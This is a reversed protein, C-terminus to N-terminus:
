LYMGIQPIVSSLHSMSNIKGNWFLKKIMLPFSIFQDMSLSMGKASGDKLSKRTVGQSDIYICFRENEEIIKEGMLPFPHVADIKVYEKKDLKLYDNSELFLIYDIDKKSLGEAYWRELTQEWVGIEHSPLRDFSKFMMTNIFRQRNDM